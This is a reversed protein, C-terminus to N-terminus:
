AKLYSKQRKLISVSQMSTGKISVFVKRLAKAEIVYHLFEICLRRCLSIMEIPTKASKPFTSYLFCLCLCDELDRIADVFTPYREKVIHDLTYKPKNAKLREAAGENGKETARKLKKLFVKFDRFKWVIPEHMLFRIDKEHYLTKITHLDGKQARKRNRPERPHIGKM